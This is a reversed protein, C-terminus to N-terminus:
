KCITITSASRLRFDTFTATGNEDLSGTIVYAGDTQNYVVAYIPGAQNQPLNSWILYRKLGNESMTLDRRPYIGETLIIEANPGILSRVLFEQNKLTKEDVSHVKLDYFDNATTSESAIVTRSPAESKFTDRDVIVPEPIIEEKVPWTIFRLLDYKSANKNSHKSSHPPTPRDSIWYAYLINDSENFAARIGVAVGDEDFYRTGKGNALTYYGGFCYGDKSPPSINGGVYNGNTLNLKADDSHGGTGGQKDFSVSVAKGYEFIPYFNGSVTDYAGEAGSSDKAPIMNVMLNNASDYVEAGYFKFSMYEYNNPCCGTLFATSNTPMDGTWNGSFSAPTKDDGVDYTDNGIEASVTFPENYVSDIIGLSESSGGAGIVFKFTDTGGGSYLYGTRTDANYFGMLSGRIQPKALNSITLKWRYSTPSVDFEFPVEMTCKTEESNNITVYEQQFYGSPLGAAYVNVECKNAGAGFGTAFALVLGCVLGIKRMLGM